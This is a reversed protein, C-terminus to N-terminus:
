TKLLTSLVIEVYVARALLGELNEISNLNSYCALWKIVTMEVDMFWELSHALVATKSKRVLHSIRSESMGEGSLRSVFACEENSLLSCCPINTAAIGHSLSVFANLSGNYLDYKPLM